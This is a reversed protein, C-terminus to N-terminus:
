ARARARTAAPAHNAAPIPRRSTAERAADIRFFAVREDMARSQHQLAKATAANQEVLASNQQTAEDMQSLAKNVQEIGSSQELSASAIESVVQAVDKISEVIETLASGAENVLDVGEKVQGSSSTILDNIDKAAQSSRQALSRVESAVVAFGRGADGARAAEVAANLALLNTQRAIEDIVGIIDSIKRSSDEIRAMAAVARSVVQGGRDAVERTAAATEKAQQASEANKKVTVAIQEMSASTQELSAAQEETRQSLNTTSTSIEASANTVETAVRKIEAITKGIGEATANANDKLTAFDGQYDATIRRTLDGGALATLMEVLEALSGGVNACLANISGGVSRVLGTKEDLAVRKSFDGAVAAQVIGGVAEEFERAVQAAAAERDAVARKEAEKQEQEMRMKALGNEKFALATQAVEGIEDKRDTGAIEVAYDGGALKQLLRVVARMPEAVGYQGIAFGLLLSLLISVAAVVVITTSVRAYEAAAEDVTKAVLEDYALIMNRLSARLADVSKSPAGAADRLHEAEQTMQHNEVAQAAAYVKDLEAGLASIRNSLDALEAKTSPSVTLEAFRTEFAKINTIETKIAAQAARSSEPRPDSVIRYIDAGIAQVNTNIRSALIAQNLTRSVLGIQGALQKLSNIGVATIGGAAISLVTIVALIKTLIRFRSLFSMAGGSSYLSAIGFGGRPKPVSAEYM